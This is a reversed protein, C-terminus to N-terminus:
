PFYINEIRIGANTVKEDDRLGSCENCVTTEWELEYTDFPVIVDGLYLIEIEVHDSKSPIGDCDRYVYFRVESEYYIVDDAIIEGSKTETSWKLTFDESSVSSEMSDFKLVVNLGDSCWMATCSGCGYQFCLLAVLIPVFVFSSVLITKTIKWMNRKVIMTGKPASVGRKM